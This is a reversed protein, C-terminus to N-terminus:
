DGRGRGGAPLARDIVPWCKGGEILRKLFLVDQRDYRAIDHLDGAQRGADFIV